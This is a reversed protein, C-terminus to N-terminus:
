HTDSCEPDTEPDYGQALALNLCAEGLPGMSTNLIVDEQQCNSCQM